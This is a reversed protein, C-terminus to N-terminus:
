NKKSFIMDLQCDISLYMARLYKKLQKNHKLIYPLKTGEGTGFDLLTQIKKNNIYKFLNKM